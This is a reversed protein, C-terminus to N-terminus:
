TNIKSTKLVSLSSFAFIEENKLSLTVFFTEIKQLKATKM